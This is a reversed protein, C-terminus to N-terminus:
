PPVDDKGSLLPRITLNKPFVVISTLFIIKSIRPIELCVIKPSEKLLIPFAQICTDDKSLKAINM